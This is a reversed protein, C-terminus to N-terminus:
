REDVEKMLNIVKNNLDKLTGDNLLEYDYKNYGDLAVETYHKSQDLTLENDFNTRIVNISIVNNFNERIKDIEEPFRADSITVVDFFYSYVKIDGIIRKIFFEKDIQERIISTGLKQLLERPKNEDSGDWDSIKKAYEKLYSAFSLNISKVGENDYYEKIYGATTDKGVRAKGSIIIVKIDEKEYNM